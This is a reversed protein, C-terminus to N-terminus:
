GDNAAKDERQELLAMAIEEPSHKQYMSEWAEKHTTELYQKLRQSDEMLARANTLDMATERKKELAKRVDEVTLRSERYMDELQGHTYYETGRHPLKNLRNSNTAANIQEQARLIVIRADLEEIIETVTQKDVM